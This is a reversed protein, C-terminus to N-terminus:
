GNTKSRPDTTGVGALHLGSLATWTGDDDLVVVQGPGADNLAIHDPTAVQIVRGSSLELYFAVFPQAYKLKRIQPIMIRRCRLADRAIGSLSTKEALAATMTQVAVDIYALLM